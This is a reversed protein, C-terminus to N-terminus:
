RCLPSIPFHRALSVFLKNRRGSSGLWFSKADPLRNLWSTRTRFGFRTPVDAEALAEDVMRLFWEDYTEEHDPKAGSAPANKTM